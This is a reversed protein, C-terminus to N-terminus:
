RRPARPRPRGPRAGVAPGEGRRPAAFAEAVAAADERRGLRLYLEVCSPRRALPRRRRDRARLSRPRSSRSPTSRPRPTASRRARPRRARRAGLSASHSGTSALADCLAEARACRPVGGRPGTRAELWALGALACALDTASGPRAPWASRRTSARGRGRGLPRDGGPRARCSHAPAAPRRRGVRRAPATSRARRRADRGASRRACGSRAWRRGRRATASRRAARRLARAHAVARASRRRAARRGRGGFVLAM